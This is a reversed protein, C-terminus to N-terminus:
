PAPSIFNHDNAWPSEAAETAIEHDSRTAGSAAFQAPEAPFSPLARDLMSQEYPASVDYVFSVADVPNANPLARDLNLQEFPGDNEAVAATALVLLSVAIILRKM